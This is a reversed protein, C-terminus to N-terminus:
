PQQWKRAFVNMCQHACSQIIDEIESNAKGHQNFYKLHEYTLKGSYCRCHCRCFNKLQRDTLGDNAKRGRQDKFCSPECADEVSVRTLYDLDGTQQIFGDDEALVAPAATAALLFVLGWFCVKKMHAVGTRFRRRQGPPDPFSVIV